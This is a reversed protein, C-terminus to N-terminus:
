RQPRQHARLLCQPTGSLHGGQRHDKGAGVDACRARRRGQGGPQRRAGAQSRQEVVARALPDVFRRAPLTVEVPDSRGEQGAEDRAVLTLKVKAGAWPHSTLDRITEGTGKRARLQPLSLPFDPAKVLPRAAPGSGKRDLPAIEATASVVGYDDEVSYSLSLANSVTASPPKLLAIRPPNDPEVSFRWSAVVREGRHVSVEAPKVLTLNHELPAADGAAASPDTHASAPVVISEEASGGHSLVDLDHAGGTRVTVVSGAPVSYGGEPMKAQAGTLFIPARGTYAPPTVWADIRAVTAALTEGGRFAEGLRANRDPGAYVFAVVLVLAILFRLALPDRRALGPAPMGSKLRGLSALLRARHAMWLAQGTPDDPATALRDSFATAPRHVAGTAREVRAFAAARTPLAVRLARVLIVIGALVFLALGGMRLWSPTIRWLGFWSLIAFVAALAVLPALRPWLEEWLLVLRARAVARNIRARTKAEVMEPDDGRSTVPVGSDSM